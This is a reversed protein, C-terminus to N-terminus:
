FNVRSYLYTLLLYRQYDRIMLDGLEFEELYNFLPISIERSVTALTEKLESYDAYQQSMNQPPENQIKM